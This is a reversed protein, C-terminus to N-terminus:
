RIILDGPPLPAPTETAPDIKIARVFMFPTGGSTSRLWFDFDMGKKGAMFDDLFFTATRVVNTAGGQVQRNGITGDSRSYELTWQGLESDLYTVKIAVAHPGGSLFKDDVAIGIADGSRALDVYWKSSDLLDNGTANFSHDRRLIPKLLSVM